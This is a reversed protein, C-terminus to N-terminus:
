YWRGNRSQSMRCTFNKPGNKVRSKFKAVSIPEQIISDDLNHCPLIIYYVSIKGGGGQIISSKFVYSAICHTNCSFWMVELLFPSPLPPSFVVHLSDNTKNMSSGQICKALSNREAEFSSDRCWLM